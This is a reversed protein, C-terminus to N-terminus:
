AALPMYVAFVTGEGLESAVAIRGEHLEVLEKAISLGLGFGPVEGEPEARSFRDFLHPLDQQGIGAGTDAVRLAAWSGPRLGDAGPWEVALRGNATYQCYECTIKGGVPTYKIANNLLNRVVQRLQDENGRVAV